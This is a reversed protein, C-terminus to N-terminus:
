YNLITLVVKNNIYHEDVGEVKLCLQKEIKFRCDGETFDNMLQAALKAMEALRQENAASGQERAVDQVYIDVNAIATQMQGNAGDLVSIVIDEKGSDAARESKYIEGGTSAIAQELPSNKIARYLIDRIEIDSKM